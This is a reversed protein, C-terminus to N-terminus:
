KVDKWHDGRRVWWVAAHSVGYRLALATTSEESLRIDRVNAETLKARGHGSGRAQRRKINRDAMNDAHTGLFLHAPNVCHRVDCSHCVCLDDPIEGVLLIWAARHAQEQRGALRFAGYGTRHIAGTWLWCDHENPDWKAHFRELVTTM